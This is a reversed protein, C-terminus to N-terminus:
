GDSVMQGLPGDIRVLQPELDFGFRSATDDTDAATSSLIALDVFPGVEDIVKDDIFVAIADGSSVSLIDEDCQVIVLDRGPGSLGDVIPEIHGLVDECRDLDGHFEVVSLEITAVDLEHIFGEFRTISIIGLSVGSHIRQRYGDDGFVFQDQRHHKGVACTNLDM